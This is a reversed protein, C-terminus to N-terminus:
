ATITLAKIARATGSRAPRPRAPQGGRLAGPRAARSARELDRSDDLLSGDHERQGSGRRADGCRALRPVAGRRKRPFEGVVARQAGLALRLRYFRLPARESSPEDASLPW